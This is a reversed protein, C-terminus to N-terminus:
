YAAFELASEEKIRDRYAVLIPNIEHDPMTIYDENASRIELKKKARSMAVYFLNIEEGIRQIDDSPIDALIAKRFSAIDTIKQKAILELIDPYDDHLIVRDWELGKSTHATTLYTDADRLYANGKAINELHLIDRGFKEVLRLSSKLEIDGVQEAYMEIEEYSNFYNLWVEKIEKKLEYNRTELVEKFFYLSKPLRFIEEPNRVTKFKTDILSAMIEILKANTRSIHCVDATDESEEKTAYIPENEGKFTKLLSSALNAVSCPIRFSTSLYHASDAKFKKMANTSKRFGYISQHQDGCIVKKGQLSDFISLTVFNTDQSEDLLIVNYNLFMKYKEINLQFFKLYFNHTPKISNRLFKENLLSVATHIYDATLLPMKKALMTYSLNLKADSSIIENLVAMSLEKHSSYCYNAFVESIFNAFSWDAVDLIDMLERARYDARVERLNLANKTFRYALGHTTFVAVNGPFKKKAEDAISKNFALYLFRMGPYAKAISVMTSTKGSGAFANIKIKADVGVSEIIMKQQATLEYMVDEKKMKM